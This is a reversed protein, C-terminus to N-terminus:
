LGGRSRGAHGPRALDDAHPLRDSQRRESGRFEASPDYAALRRRLDESVLGPPVEDLRSLMETMQGAVIRADGVIGADVDCWRGLAARDADVQVVSKGQLLSGYATTYRNLGAGLAVLCDAEAVIEASLTSGVTGMVGLAFPHGRFLGRAGLTTAVPANLVGALSEVEDRADAEVCGRGALIIPRSSSAIVGLARDLLDPDPSLSPAEHIGPPQWEYEVQQSLFPAPVDLVVPRRQLAAQRVARSFDATITSASAVRVYGAGTPGVTAPQDIRQNHALDEPDTDGTLLLM